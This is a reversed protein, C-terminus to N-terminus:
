LGFAVQLMAFDTLDSDGDGDLDTAECGGPVSVEPGALCGAFFVYDDLDVDGDGDFDGPLNTTVTLVAIGRSACALWLEYGGEVERVEADWIQEHPLGEARTLAGFNVGDFWEIAGEINHSNFNTFWVRGDPTVALPTVQDATMDSTSNHYWEHTGSEADVRFLGETSGVWAVGNRDAAVTTFLDHMPNLEPFDVNERSFRYDGDTRVVEFGACAWVTGPRDPDPVVNAGWGDIPVDIFGDGDHYRLSYYNGMTWLRGLSDEALGDSQSGTELTYFADGGWERIGNNTPNFATHGTSSRFCIADANDCPFPWDGGMGYTLINFNYWHTGNFVGIGGVGSGGNCTFWLDGNPAFSMDRVWNDMQGNNSLRHRQWTGTGADYKAAGGNGSVWVDGDPERGIGYTHVGPRWEGLSPTWSTGDFSYAHSGGGIMVAQRDGFARFTNLEIAGEFPMPPAVWTGDPRLYELTYLQGPSVQRLMWVNGAEDDGNAIVSEIEGPTDNNPLVTFLDTDSDYQAIGFADDIWVLYGGGPKPQIAAAYTTTWGPWNNANSSTDWVTWAQTAPDYRTMGGGNGYAARWITGDPAIGIDMTRGGTFPSNEPDFRVFSEPGAAPDFYLLGRWTGMWIGGDGDQCFDSIRSSGTYQSDGIVPYDVNSFNEWRNEAEIYRSFGGEEFFPDYGAIYPTGDPAIWVADSYDGMVGTNGPRYYKWSYDLQGYVPNATAVAALITLVTTRTCTNGSM